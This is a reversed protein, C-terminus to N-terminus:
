AVLRMATWQWSIWGNNWGSCADFERLMVLLEYTAAHLRAALEAIADGLRVVHHEREAAVAIRTDRSSETPVLSPSASM